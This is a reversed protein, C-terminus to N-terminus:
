PRRELAELDSDQWQRADPQDFPDLAIRQVGAGDMIRQINALPLAVWPQRPGLASVLREVTTFVQLARGGDRTQHVEFIVDGDHGPRTDAHAPAFVIVPLDADNDPSGV